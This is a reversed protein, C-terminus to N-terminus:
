TVKIDHILYLGAYHLSAVYFTFMFMFLFIM